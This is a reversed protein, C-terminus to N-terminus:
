NKGSLPLLQLLVYMMLCIMESHPLMLPLVTVLTNKSIHVFPYFQPVELFRKDPRNYRTGYRGSHISLHPSFYNQHGSHLFKYVLTATKFIRRFEVPLWHLNKMIPSAWLYRNCNTVVRGLTYKSYM